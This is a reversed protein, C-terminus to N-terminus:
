EGERQQQVEVPMVGATEAHGGVIGAVEVGAAEGEADGGEGEAEGGGEADGHPLGAEAGEREKEGDGGSEHGFAGVAATSEAPEM